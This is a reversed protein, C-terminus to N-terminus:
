NAALCSSNCKWNAFAGATSPNIIHDHESLWPMDEAAVICQEYDAFHGLACNLIVELSQQQSSIRWQTMYWPWCSLLGDPQWIRIHPEATVKRQIVNAWRWRLIYNITNPLFEIMMSPRPAWIRSPEQFHFCAELLEFPLKLITNPQTIADSCQGM